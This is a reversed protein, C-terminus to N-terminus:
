GLTAGSSATDDTGEAQQAVIEALRALPHNPDPASECGCRGDNLDAGCTACLGACDPDHIPAFPTAVVLAEMIVPELDVTDETEPIYPLPEGEDDVGPETFFVVDYSGTVTLAFPELCRVCETQLPLSARGHVRVGDGVYDASGQITVPGTPVFALDGVVFEDLTFSGNLEVTDISKSLLSSVELLYM